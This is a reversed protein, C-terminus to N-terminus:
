LKLIGALGGKNLHDGMIARLRAVITKIYDTSIDGSAM